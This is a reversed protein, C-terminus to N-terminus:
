LNNDKIFKVIENFCEPSYFDTRIDYENNFLEVTHFYLRDEGKIFDYSIYVYDNDVTVHVTKDVCKVAHDFDKTANKYQNLYPEVYHNYNGDVYGIGNRCYKYDEIPVKIYSTWIEYPFDIDM